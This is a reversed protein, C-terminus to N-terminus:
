PKAHAGFMSLWQFMNRVRSLRSCMCNLSDTKGARVNKVVGGWSLPHLPPPPLPLLLSLLALFPRWPLWLDALLSVAAIQLPLSQSTVLSVPVSTVLSVRCFDCAVGRGRLRETETYRYTDNTSYLLVSYVSYSPASQFGCEGFRFGLAQSPNLSELAQSASTECFDLCLMPPIDRLDFRPGCLTAFRGCSM